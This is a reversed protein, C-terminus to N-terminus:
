KFNTSVKEEEDIFLEDEESDVPSINTARLTSNVTTAKRSRFDQTKQRFLSKSAMQEENSTPFFRTMIENASEILNVDDVTMVKLNSKIYKNQHDWFLLKLYPEAFSKIEPKQLGVLVCLLALIYSLTYRTDFFMVFSVILVCWFKSLRPYKFFFLPKEFLDDLQM